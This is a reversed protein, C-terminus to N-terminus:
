AVDIKVSVTADEALSAKRESLWAAQCAIVQAMGVAPRRM